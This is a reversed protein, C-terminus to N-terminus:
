RVAIIDLFVSKCEIDKFRFVGKCFYNRWTSVLISHKELMIYNIDHDATTFCLVMKRNSDVKRDVCLLGLEACEKVAFLQDEYQITVVYKWSGAPVGIFKDNDNLSVNDAAYDLYNVGSSFAQNFASDKMANSASENFTQELVFGKGRMFKVDKTVKNTLGLASYYPNIVSVNNACMYLPLYRVQEGAGRAVSTHISLLKKVEGSVYHNDESQFEDLMMRNVYVFASSFQKIADSSSIAIAYGCVEGNFIYQYYLGSAVPKASFTSGPFDIQVLDTFFGEVADKLQYKFRYLVIFQGKGELFRRLMLRKFYYTKGATRNGVCLYIEPKNGNEDSLSLLKTGDYYKSM